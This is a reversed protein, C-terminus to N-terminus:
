KPTPPPDFAVHAVRSPLHEMTTPVPHNSTDNGAARLAEALDPTTLARIEDGTLDTVQQPTIRTPM